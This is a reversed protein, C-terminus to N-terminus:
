RLVRFRLHTANPTPVSDVREFRAPDGFNEWMRVGAGLMVPVLHLQVEDLLGAALAQQATTAGHLGVVKDGAVAAAQKIASPVGDHVFTFVDAAHAPAPRHTVVFCPVEGAPGGDGWGGDGECFDYSRRGMVIAGVGAVMDALVQRDAESPDALWAHLPEGGVGLPHERSDDPGTVYGDLSMSMGSIVKAM